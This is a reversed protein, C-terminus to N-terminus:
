ERLNTADYFSNIAIIKGREIKVWDCCQVVGNPTGMEFWIASESDSSVTRIIKLSTVNKEALPRVWDLYKERGSVTGFPSSHVFDTALPIDDPKGANWGDIWARALKESEQM